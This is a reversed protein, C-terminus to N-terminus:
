IHPRNHTPISFPQQYYKAKGIRKITKNQILRGVVRYVFPNMISKSVIQFADNSISVNKDVQIALRDLFDRVRKYSKGAENFDKGDILTGPAVAIAGEWLFDMESAFLKCQGIACHHAEIEAFGSNSIVMVKRTKKILLNQNERLLEFIQIVLGPVANQYIPLSIIIYDAQNFLAIVNEPNRIEKRLLIQKQDCQDSFKESVYDAISESNGKKNKPSGVIVLVNKKM